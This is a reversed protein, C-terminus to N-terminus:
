SVLARAVDAADRRVAGLAAPDPELLSDLVRRRLGAYFQLLAPGAAAGRDVGLQLATLAALARTLGASKRANDGREAATIASGLALDFQEFCLAVLQDPRAAAVRADFDVRRYADHPSHQILM